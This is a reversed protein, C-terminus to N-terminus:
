KTLLKPTPLGLIEEVSCGLQAELASKLHYIAELRHATRESSGYRIIVDVLRDALPLLVDQCYLDCLAILDDYPTNEHTTIYNQLFPDDPRYGSIMECEHDIFSHTLCVNAVADTYGLDKLYHYGNQIHEPFPGIGRGIDHLCGLAEAFDPDLGPLHAALRAACEGVVLSHPLWKDDNGYKAAKGRLPELLAHAEKATIHSKQARANEPSIATKPSKM